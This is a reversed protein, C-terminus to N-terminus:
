AVCSVLVGEPFTIQQIRNRHPPQSLRERRVPIRYECWRSKTGPRIAYQDDKQFAADPGIDLEYFDKNKVDDIQRVQGPHPRDALLLHGLESDISSILAM